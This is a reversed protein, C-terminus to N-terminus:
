AEEGLRSRLARTARHQLQKVANPKKGLAAATDEISLDAVVRLLLVDRQDPALGALVSRLREDGLSVLAEDAADPARPEPAAELPAPRPRRALRRREDVLLHHAITFVWSRFRDEDGAFTGLSTFARLFVDNATGDPDECGAGRLYAAVPRGLWTFLREFAWGEGARAADLVAAFPEGFRETM